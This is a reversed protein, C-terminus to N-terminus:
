NCVDEALLCINTKRTTAVLYLIEGYRRGVKNRHTNAKARPKFFRYEKSGEKDYKQKFIPQM